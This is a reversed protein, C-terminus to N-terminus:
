VAFVVTVGWLKFEFVCVGVISFWWICACLVVALRKFCVLM